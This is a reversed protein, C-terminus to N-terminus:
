SVMMMGTVSTTWDGNSFEQGIKTVVFYAGKMRSPLRDINFSDGYRPGAYGDFNVTAELTYTFVPRIQGSNAEVWSVLTQKATTVDEETIRDGLSERAEDISQGTKSKQADETDKYCGPYLKKLQKSGKGTMAANAALAIMDSDLNSSLSIDRVGSEYGNTMSITTAGNTISNGRNMIYMVDEKDPDTYFYLQLYGGTADEIEQFVKKLFQVTSVSREEKAGQPKRLGDLIKSLAPISIYINREIPGGSLASYDAKPGYKATKSGWTILVSYPNASFVDNQKAGLKINFRFDAKAANGSANSKIDKVLQALEVFDTTERNAGVLNSFWGEDIIQKIIAMGPSYTTGKGASPDKENNTARGVLNGIIDVPIVEKGSEEDTYKESTTNSGLTLFDAGTIGDSMGGVKITVDYSLDQNISFDFNTIDGKQTMAAGGVWGITFQCRHGPTMFTQDIADFDSKNYVKIKFEAQFLMADSLDQGGDNSVSISELVPKPTLRGGESSLLNSHTQQVDSEISTVSGACGNMNTNGGIYTIKGYARKHVGVGKAIKSAPTEMFDGPLPLGREGLTFSM